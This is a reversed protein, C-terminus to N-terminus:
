RSLAAAAKAIFAAVAQPQSVYLAHSGPVETVTSGARQSMQRQAPPPIMRDDTAVLYWSPKSKWAAQTVTFTFNFYLGAAGTVGIFWVISWFLVRGYAIRLESDYVLNERQCILRAVEIPADAVVTPYCDRLREEDGARLIERANEFVEEADFRAGVVFENWSIDLV